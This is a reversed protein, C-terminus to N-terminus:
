EADDFEPAFMARLREKIEADREDRQARRTITRPPNATGFAEDSTPARSKARCGSNIAKQRETDLSDNTRARPSM